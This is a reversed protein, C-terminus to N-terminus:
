RRQLRYWLLAVQLAARSEADDLSVGLVEELRTLRAYLAQRSLHAARAVESKNGAHHLYVELLGLAWPPEADLVPGLEALAFTRMRHDGALLAVLGRLRLDAFRYFAKERTDTVAAARAVQMAVDIGEAATTLRPHEPGVGVTWRHPSASGGSSVDRPTRQTLRDLVRALVEDVDFQQPVGLLVAFTGTQLGAALVSDTVPRAAGLWDEVLARSRLHLSPLDEGPVPHVHVAIPVFRTSLRIGLSTARVRAEEEALEGSMLAQLFSEQARHLLDAQDRRAMRALTLAQGARELVLVEEDHHPELGVASLRGWVDRATGVAISAAGTRQSWEAALPGEHIEDADAPTARLLERHAVDELIVTRGLLGATVDMIQQEDASELNLQVFVEHVHRSREVRALQAGILIRHASQTIRVFRVEHHLVVVPLRLGEVASRVAQLAARDTRGDRDVLEIFVGAAGGEDLARLFNRIRETSTRFGSVTSLVVEGGEIMSGVWESDGAHVWRVSRDLLSAGTVVEPRGARVEDLDLLSRVTLLDHRPRVRSM